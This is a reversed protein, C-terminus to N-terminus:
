GNGPKDYNIKIKVLMKFREIIVSSGIIQAHRIGPDVPKPDVSHCRIEPCDPPPKAWNRQHPSPPLVNWYQRRQQLLQFIRGSISLQFIRGSISLQFIRGSISLQFIHGSISLQFIYSLSVLWMESGYQPTRFDEQCTDKTCYTNLPTYLGFIGM